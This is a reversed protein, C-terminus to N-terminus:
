QLSPNLTITTRGFQFATPYANSRASYWLDYGGKGNETFDARYMWKDDWQGKAGLGLLASAGITWHVGDLSEAYRLESVGKNQIVAALRGGFYRISNHYPAFAHNFVCVVPSGLKELSDGKRLEMENDDNTTWVYFLGDKFMASPSYM